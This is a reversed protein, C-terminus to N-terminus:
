NNKVAPCIPPKYIMGIVMADMNFKIKGLRRKGNEERILNTLIDNSLEYSISSDNRSFKNRTALNKKIIISDYTLSIVHKKFIIIFLSISFGQTKKRLIIIM